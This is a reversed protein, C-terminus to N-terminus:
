DKRKVPGPLTGVITREITTDLDFELAQINESFSVPIKEQLSKRTRRYGAGAKENNNHHQSEV